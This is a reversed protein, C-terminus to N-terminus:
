IVHSYGGKIQLSDLGWNKPLGRGIYQNKTGGAGGLGLSILTKWGESVLNKNLIEWNSNKTIVSCFM